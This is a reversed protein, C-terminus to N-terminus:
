LEARLAVAAEQPTPIEDFRAQLLPPMQIRGKSSALCLGVWYQAPTTSSTHVVCRLGGMASTGMGHVHTWGVEWDCDFNTQQEIIDIALDCSKRQ